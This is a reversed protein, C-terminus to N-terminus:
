KKLYLVAEERKEEIPRPKLRQHPCLPGRAANLIQVLTFAFAFARRRRPLRAVAHRVRSPAIATYKAARKRLLLLAAMLAYLLRAAFPTTTAALLLILADVRRIKVIAPHAGPSAATPM